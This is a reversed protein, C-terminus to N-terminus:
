STGNLESEYDHWKFLYPDGLALNTGPNPFRGRKTEIKKLCHGPCPHISLLNKDTSTLLQLAGNLLRSPFAIHTETAKKIDILHFQGNQSLDNEEVIDLNTQYLCIGDHSGALLNNELEDRSFFSMFQTEPPNADAMNRAEVKNILKNAPINLSSGFIDRSELYCNEFEFGNSKAPAAIIRSSGISPTINYFRIGVCESEVLIKELDSKLFFGRIQAITLPIANIQAQTLTIGKHSTEYLIM